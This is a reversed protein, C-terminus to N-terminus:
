PLSPIHCCLKLDRQKLSVLQLQVVDEVLQPSVVSVQLSHVSVQAVEGLGRSADLGLQVFVRVTHTNQASQPM